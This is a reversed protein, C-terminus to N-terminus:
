YGIEAYLTDVSPSVGTNSATLTTRFQFARGVVTQGNALFWDGWVPSSTPDDQTARVEVISQMDGFDADSATWRDWTEPWTEWLQPINDWEELYDAHREFLIYGTCVANRATGLDVYDASAATQSGSLAGGFYYMGQPNAATTIDIQLEDPTKSTDIIINSNPVLNNGVFDPDETQTVVIGLIPLDNPIVLASTANNSPQGIKDVAKILFTGSRAPVTAFTAPRAVKNIIVNSNAWLDDPDGSLAATHKVQYYSLDLDSVPEWKLFCTGQSIEFNFGTVQEPPTDPPNLEFALEYVWDGKVGFTNIGRARIDYFDRPLDLVSYKGLEGTGMPLYEDSSSLKYQVEVRDIRSSASSTISAALETAVKETIIRTLASPTIGVAPVEFPSLLTTNDTEYVMGDAIDDFVNESIERLTVNVQLDQDEQLGFTWQLVEFQKNTWGFRSISLNIIDGVEIQFGRMGFSAQVTLQQRNRELTILALRRCINFNDTFPLDLDNTSIQNNDTIRFAPNTVEAYDTPQYETEPGRFVGKVTNFNNRRSHRTSVGISSRLDDENFSVTPAVYHAAKMRWKGQGFWLLGGMASLLDILHDHPTVATTFAGNLTFRAVGTLTPYNYYDCVNAATTVATDDISEELDGLGYAANTLYDRICLAPNDSWVTTDTRPDYIKKGKLIATIQPVNNPFSDAEFEMRFYAYALGQLKHDQTWGVGSQILSLIATDNESGGKRLYIRVYSNYRTHTKGDKSTALTPRYYTDGNGDTGTTLTLVEDNFYFTTFEEIEHGTFTIIRHLVKNNEGSVADFIIAGGIRTQGYIIQHDQASGRSSIQYGRNAQNSGSPINPKPTLGKLAVGLVFSTAFATLFATGIAIGTIAAAGAAMAGSLLAIGASIAM